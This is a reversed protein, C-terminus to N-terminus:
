HVPESLRARQVEAEDIVHGDEDVLRRRWGNEDQEVYALRARSWPESSGPASGIVVELPINMALASKELDSLMCEDRHVWPAPIREDLFGWRLRVVGHLRGYEYLAHLSKVDAELRRRLKTEEGKALYEALKAEDGFPRSIGCSGQVLLTTTIKLTRGRKNLKKTKQPPGLEALRREGAHFDLARLLGRVDMAGIVDYTALRSRLEGLEDGVFTTITHEGVDLLAAAQPRKPPFTVLLARSMRALEAAHAARKKEWEARSREIAEPDSRLAVRQVRPPRLGLRFVWLNLEDDHPDLHYLDGDRYVPPRGPKCRKLSLLARSREAIGAHEFRTAVEDLTMPQGRELLTVLLLSFTNAERHDVVSELKPRAMGLAECWANTTEGGAGGEATVGGGRRPGTERGTM